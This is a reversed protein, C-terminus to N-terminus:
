VIRVSTSPMGFIDMFYKLRSLCINDEDPHYSDWGASLLHATVARAADWEGAHQFRVNVPFHTLFSFRVDDDKDIKRPFDIVISTAIALRQKRPGLESSSEGFVRVYETPDMSSINVGEAATDILTLCKFIMTYTGPQHELIAAERGQERLRTYYYKCLDCMTAYTTCPM